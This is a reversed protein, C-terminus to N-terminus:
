ETLNRAADEYMCSRVMLTPQNRLDVERAPIEEGHRNFRIEVKPRLPLRPNVSIVQGVEGTNLQVYCGVPYLSIADILAKLIAPDFTKKHNKILLRIADRPLLRERYSRFHVLSEFMSLLGVIRAMVPINNGDLGKPGSGDHREPANAVALLIDTQGLGNRQLYDTAFEPTQRILEFEEDSLRDKKSRISTPIRTMGLHHLMSALTLNLKALHDLGLQMAMKLAYLMMTMAKELLDGLEADLNRIRKIRNTLVLEFDNLQMPDEELKGTLEDLAQRLTTLDYPTDTGAHRFAALTRDTIQTLLTQIDEPIGSADVPFTASPKGGQDSAAAEVAAGEEPLAGIEEIITQTGPDTAQEEDYLAAFEDIEQAAPQKASKKAAPKKTTKGARSKGKSAAKEQSRLLDIQRTM